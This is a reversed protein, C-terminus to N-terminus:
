KEKIKMVYQDIYRKITEKEYYVRTKLIRGGRGREGQFVRTEVLGRKELESIVYGRHKVTGYLSSKPVNASEKIQILTRWGSKELALRKRMYDDAFAKTLYEFVKQANETKFQFGAPPLITM